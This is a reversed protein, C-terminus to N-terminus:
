KNRKMRVMWHQIQHQRLHHAMQHEKWRAKSENTCVRVPHSKEQTAWNAEQQILGTEQKPAGNVGARLWPDFTTCWVCTLWLVQSGSIPLTVQLFMWSVSSSRCRGEGVSTWYRAFISLTTNDEAALSIQSINCPLCRGLHPHYNHPLNRNVLLSNFRWLEVLHCPQTVPSEEPWYCTFPPPLM